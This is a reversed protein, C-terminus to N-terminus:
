RLFEVRIHDKWFPMRDKVLLINPYINLEVQTVGYQSKIISLTEEKGKGGVSKSIDAVSLSKSFIIEGGITLQMDGNELKKQKKVTFNVTETKYGNPKENELKKEVFDKITKNPIRSVTVEISATYRLSDTEEGIEGSFQEKSAQTTTLEPLFIFTTDTKQKSLADLKAKDLASSKITDMDSKSITRITKKTGGTLASENIGFIVLSSIDSVSFRKNKEVNSETGLTSAHVKVNAKGPNRTVGDSAFQSSPLPITIADDTEYTLSNFQLKTGKPLQKEKEDYSYLTVEGTAKEGVDKKGTTDKKESASFSTTFTQM